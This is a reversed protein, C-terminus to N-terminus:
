TQSYQKNKGSMEEIDLRLIATNEFVKENYEYDGKGNYHDMICNMGRIKEEKEIVVSIKGYGIISRFSMGWDCSKEGKILKHDIDMEFCVLNNKSIMELKKGERACHFYFSQQPQSTYGFNLTVIYPFNDNALAIRCVDSKQIIKEIETSTKIERDTRRM